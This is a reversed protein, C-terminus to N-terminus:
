RHAIGLYQYPVIPCRNEGVWRCKGEILTQLPCIQSHPKPLEPSSFRGKAEEQNDLLM